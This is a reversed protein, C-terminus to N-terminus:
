IEFIEGFEKGIVTKKKKLKEQSDLKQPILDEFIAILTIM